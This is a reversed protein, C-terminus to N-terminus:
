GHRPFIWVEVTNTPTGAATTIRLAYPAGPHVDHRAPIWTWHGRGDTRGVALYRQGRPRPALRHRAPQSAARRTPGARLHRQPSVPTRRRVRGRLGAAPRGGSSGATAVGHDHATLLALAIPWRPM